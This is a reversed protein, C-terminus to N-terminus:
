SILRNHGSARAAATTECPSCVSPTEGPDEQDQHRHEYANRIVEVRYRHRNAETESAGREQVIKKVGYRDRVVAHAKVAEPEWSRQSIGFNRVRLESLIPKPYGDLGYVEDWVM